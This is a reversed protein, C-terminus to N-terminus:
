DANDNITVEKGLIFIDPAYHALRHCNACVLMCKDLERYMVEESQNMAQSPNYDKTSPDLHHFDYQCPLFVGGCNQCAGGKYAVAKIKRQPITARYLVQRKQNRAGKNAHHNDRARQNACVKCYTNRKDRTQGHKHFETLPYLYGCCKCLKEDILTIM